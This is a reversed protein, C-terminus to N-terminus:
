SPKLVIIHTPPPHTKWFSEVWFIPPTDGKPCLVRNKMAASNNQVMTHMRHLLSWRTTCFHTMYPAIFNTSPLM